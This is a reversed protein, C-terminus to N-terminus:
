KKNKLNKAQEKTLVTHKRLKERDKKHKAKTGAPDPDNTTKGGGEMKGPINKYKNYVYKPVKKGDIKYWYPNQKTHDEVSTEYSGKKIQKAPSEKFSGIKHKREKERIEKEITKAQIRKPM